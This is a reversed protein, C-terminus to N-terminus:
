VEKLGLYKQFEGLSKIWKIKHKKLLQLMERRMDVTWWHGIGTILGDSVWIRPGRQKGLWKLAPIDVINCNRGAIDRSIKNVVMGKEALIELIGTNYHRSDDDKFSPDFGAPDCGSIACYGAIKVGKSNIIVNELMEKRIRMSGSCDILVTGANLKKHGGFIIKDTMIRHPYRMVHGFDTAKKNGKIKGKIARFNRLQPERIILKGSLVVTNKKERGEFIIPFESNIEMADRNNAEERALEEISCIKVKKLSEKMDRKANARYEKLEEESM